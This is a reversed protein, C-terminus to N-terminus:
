GEKVGENRGQRSSSMLVGVKITRSLEGIGRAEPIDLLKAIDIIGSRNVGRDYRVGHLIGDNNGFM